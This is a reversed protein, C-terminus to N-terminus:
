VRTSHDDLGFPTLPSTDQTFTFDHEGIMVVDGERAGHEELAQNIGTARLIRQLRLLSEEYNWNMMAVTREITEGSVRFAGPQESTIEFEKTNREEAFDVREPRDGIIETEDPPPLSQVFKKMRRMLDDVNQRTLASIGMVRTHNAAAKLKEILEPLREQVHPLDIKNVVVVQPKLALRPNFLELEQNIAVFDGVPDNREGDVVHVLARCRQIHRLFALGLGVGEHAGELLGPIDALVLGRGEDLDCVGLNPVITTFPYNAIKPKANSAAALLSSKGANPVGVFGVDAVLKLEIHIWRADGAEGHEALCPASQRSTKFALNGRGGRGGAAVLLQEDNVTLEGALRGDQDFVITGPPVPIVVDEASHGTKGKGLGRGGDEARYHVKMRLGSLTNMTPDCRLYVSGGKGGSGGFPGGQEVRFERRWAVCGDGGKGGAVFIKATDFFMWERDNAARGTTTIPPGKHADDQFDDPLAVAKVPDVLDKLRTHYRLHFPAQKQQTRPDLFRQWRSSKVAGFGHVYKSCLLLLLLQLAKFLFGRGRM